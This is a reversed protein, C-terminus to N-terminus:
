LVGREDCPYVEMIGPIRQPVVEVDIEKIESVPRFYRKGGAYLKSLDQAGIRVKVKDSKLKRIRESLLFAEALERFAPHFPGAVVDNNESIEETPQLGVRIVQIGEEQYRKMMLGAIEVAEDLSYPVYSGNRFDGEMETDKIVLAPYIRALDPKMMISEELSMMDKEKSDGPLGIMLQHCLVMGFSKILKSAMEVAGKQYGRKALRLVEDDMSQVGLEVVDVNYSKLHNMIPLTIYDPRTSLRIKDILGKEKASKAAGLLEKQKILSIATFTGGFFSVEVATHKRDITELYKEITEQVSKGTIKEYDERLQGTIKAQNCFICDHPCGVHPIFIPIIIHRTM